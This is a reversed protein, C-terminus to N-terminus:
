EFSNRSLEQMERITKNEQVNYIMDSSNDIPKRLKKLFKKSLHYKICCKDTIASGFVRKLELRRRKIREYDVEDFTKATVAWRYAKAFEDDTQRSLSRWYYRPMKISRGDMYLRNTEYFQSPINSGIGPRRSMEVFPLLRGNPFHKRPFVIEFYPEQSIAVIEGTEKNALFPYNKIFETRDNREFYPKTLYNTLYKASEENLDIISSYGKDWIKELTKSRYTKVSKDIFFLWKDEHFDVGFLAIHYHPRNTGLDGYEGCAFFRIKQPYFHARLSKMFLQVHRKDLSGLPPLNEDNYTLTIVCNYKHQRAEIMMRWAWETARQQQCEVCRMCKVYMNASPLFRPNVCM